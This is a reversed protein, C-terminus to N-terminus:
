DYLNVLEVDFITISNAPIGEQAVTGYGLASPMILKIKGGKGILPLGYQWGTVLGSLEMSQIGGKSDTFLSDNSLWGKYRVSVVSYATPRNYLDGDKSVQYYLGSGHRLASIDEHQALYDQILKEDIESQTEKDCSFLGALM